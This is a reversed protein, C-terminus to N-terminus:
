RDGAPARYPATLVRTKGSGAGAVILLPGGRHEVAARQPLTLDDLLAAPNGSFAGAKTASRRRKRRGDDAGEAYGPDAKPDFDEDTSESAGIAASAGIGEDSDEFLRGNSGVAEADSESSSGQAGRGGSGPAM